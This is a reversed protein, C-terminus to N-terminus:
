MVRNDVSQDRRKTFGTAAFFCAAADSIRAFREIEQVSGREQYYIDYGAGAAVFYWGDYTQKRYYLWGGQDPPAALQAHFTGDHFLEVVREQDGSLVTAITSALLDNATM